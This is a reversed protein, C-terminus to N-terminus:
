WFDVEDVEYIDDSETEEASKNSEETKIFGSDVNISTPTSYIKGVDVALPGADMPEGTTEVDLAVVIDSQTQGTDLSAFAEIRSRSTTVSTNDINWWYLFAIVGSLFALSSGLLLLINRGKVGTRLSPTESFSYYGTDQMGVPQNLPNQQLFAGTALEGIIGGLRQSVESMKSPRDQPNKELMQAILKTLSEPIEQGVTTKRVEAPIEHVHANWIRMLDSTKVMDTGVIGEWLLVGLSYIDTAITLNSGKIQEPSMYKPTGIPHNPNTTNVDGEIFKAIGFDLVKALQEDGVYQIFINGPKVDRHIIGANHAEQLSGCIQQCFTLLQVLRPRNEKYLKNLPYGQLYEMVMILSEDELMKIDYLTITNPHSLTKICNIEFIHRNVFEPHNRLHRRLVKIAVIRSIQIDEAKYVAGMGGAGIVELIRYREALIDQPAYIFDLRNGKSM